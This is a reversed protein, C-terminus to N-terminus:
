SSRSGQGAKSPDPSVSEQTSSPDSGGTPSVAPMGVIANERMYEDMERWGAFVAAKGARPNSEFCAEISRVAHRCASGIAKAEAEKKAAIQTATEIGLAECGALLSAASVLCLTIAPHRM